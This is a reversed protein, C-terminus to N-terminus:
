LNEKIRIDIDVYNYEQEPAIGELLYRSLLELPLYGQKFPQQCITANIIGSKVLELTTPVSDYAFIKMGEARGLSLVAQCGGYVGGAVFYLTNLM